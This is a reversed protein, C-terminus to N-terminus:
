CNWNLWSFKRGTKTYFLDYLINNNKRKNWYNWDDYTKTSSLWFISSVDKSTGAVSGQKAMDEIYDHGDFNIGQICIFVSNNKPSRSDYVLADIETQISGQLIEYDIRELLKELKM